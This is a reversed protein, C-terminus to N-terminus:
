MKCQKIQEMVWNTRAATEGTSVVHDREGRLAEVVQEILLHQINKPPPLRCIMEKGDSTFLHVEPNGFTAFSIKGEDGVITVEEKRAVESTTFCWLGNGIVGNEFLFSGAVIDSAPYLGAQNHKLGHVERIPGFLFDLYDLQHSALDYFYGGGAIEPQVRWNDEPDVMLAPHRSQYLRIDVFRVQGIKGSDIHHKIKLFQPLTRRYYAVFLPVGAATCAEIMRQCETYTRAMPKEVYVPKGAKAARVAYEAHSDPPTAIYIANVEPDAILEDANNYWRSVDHRRAYDEAKSATRRMVAVLRSHPIKNMAPASKRECVDGAGIIGWNVVDLKKM